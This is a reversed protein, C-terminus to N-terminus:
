THRGLLGVTRTPFLSRAVRRSSKCGSGDASVPAPRFPVSRNPATRASAAPLFM